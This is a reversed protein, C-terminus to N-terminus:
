HTCVLCTHGLCTHHILLGCARTQCTSWAQVCAHHTHPVSHGHMARSSSCGGRNALVGLCALWDSLVRAKALAKNGLAMPKDMAMNGVVAWAEHDSGDQGIALAGHGPGRALGGKQARWDYALGWGLTLRSLVHGGMLGWSMGVM